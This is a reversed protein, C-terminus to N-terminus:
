SQEPLKIEGHKAEYDAVLQKLHDRVIKALSLDRQEAIHLAKDRLDADIRM